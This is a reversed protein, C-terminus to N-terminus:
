RGVENEEIVEQFPSFSTGNCEKNKCIRIRTQWRGCDLCQAFLRKKAPVVLGAAKLNKYNECWKLHSRISQRNRFRRMCYPCPTTWTPGNAPNRPML